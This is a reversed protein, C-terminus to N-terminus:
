WAPMTLLAAEVSDRDPPNALLQHLGVQQKDLLYAV